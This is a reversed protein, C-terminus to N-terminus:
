FCGMFTYIKSAKLNELWFEDFEKQWNQFWLDTGRWIKWWEETDNSTVVRYTTAWAHEVKPLFIGHFCWKQCKWTNQHFNALNKMDNELGCTLKEEFKAGSKQMMLCIEKMSKKSSVKYVKLLLLRDFYLNPSIKGSNDSIRFNQVTAPEKQLFWIFNWSCFYLLSIEWSM